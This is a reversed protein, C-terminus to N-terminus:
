WGGCPLLRHCEVASTVRIRISTSPAWWEELHAPTACLPLWSTLVRFYTTPPLPPYWGTTRSPAQTIHPAPCSCDAHHTIIHRLSSSALRPALHQPQAMAVGRRNLNHCSRCWGEIAGEAKAHTTVRGGVGSRSASPRGDDLTSYDDKRGNIELHDRDYTQVCLRAVRTLYVCAFYTGRGEGCTCVQGLLGHPAVPDYDVAYSPKIEINMRLKGPHPAGVTSECRHALRCCAVRGRNVLSLPSHMCPSIISAYVRMAKSYLAPCIHPSRPPRSRTAWQGTAVHLTKHHLSVNVNEVVFPSADEKLEYRWGSGQNNNCNPATCGETIIAHHPDKSHFFVQLVRGTQITRITHFAARVQWCSAQSNPRAM